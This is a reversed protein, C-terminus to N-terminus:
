RPEGIHSCGPAQSHASRGMVGRCYRVRDGQVGSEGGESEGEDERAIASAGTLWRRREDSGGVEGRGDPYAMLEVEVGADEAGLWAHNAM